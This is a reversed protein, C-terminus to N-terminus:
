GLEVGRGEEKVTKAGAPKRRRRRRKVAGDRGEKAASRPKDETKSRPVAREQSREKIAKEREVKIREGKFRDTKPCGDGSTRYDDTQVEGQNQGSALVVGKRRQECECGDGGPCGTCRRGQRREGDDLLRGTLDMGHNENDWDEGAKVAERFQAFRDVPLWFYGKPGRLQCTRHAVDIGLLIYVGNANKVRTGPQPLVKWVEAYVPHEYALCCMLRGCLGSIKAPNLSLNQEKVMRINIPAFRHLFTNCCCPRGCSGLGGTVKAEDRAGIQRLEIRTHFERALDRVYARFDVRRDATFYFFLKKRDALFEIDVVKIPLNHRVLLSRAVKLGAQEEAARDEAGAMDDVSPVGVLQLYQLQDEHNEGGEAQIRGLEAASMPGAVLGLELGRPTLVKIPAGLPLEEDTEVAGLFRPKGYLIM